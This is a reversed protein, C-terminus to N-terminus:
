SAGGQLLGHLLPLSLLGIALLLEAFRSGASTREALELERARNQPSELNLM